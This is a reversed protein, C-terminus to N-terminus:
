VNYTGPQSTVGTHSAPATTGVVGGPPEGGVQATPPGTTTSTGVGRDRKKKAWHKSVVYGGLIASVFFAVLAMFSFALVTRWHGCGANAIDAPGNVFPRRRWWGGWYYGWYNRFWPASCTHAGTRTILLCFLVLWMIFLAFDFPFALFSCMFPAMFVLAFLTSISAVIIGYIIRGDRAAGAESLVRLFRALIGLVIVSCIFQWVRMAALAIRSVGGM